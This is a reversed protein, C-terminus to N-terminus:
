LTNVSAAARTHPNLGAHTTLTATLHYIHLNQPRRRREAPHPHLFQFITRERYFYVYKKYPVSSKAQAQV